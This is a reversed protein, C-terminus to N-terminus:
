WFGSGTLSSYNQFGCSVCDIDNLDLIIFIQHIGFNSKLWQIPVSVYGAGIIINTIIMRKM